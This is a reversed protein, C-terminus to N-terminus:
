SDGCEGKGFEEILGESYAPFVRQVVECQRKSLRDTPAVSVGVGARIMQELLVEPGQGNPLEAIKKLWEISKTAGDSGQFMQYFGHAIIAGIAHVDQLNTDTCDLSYQKSDSFFVGLAYDNLRKQIGDKFRPWAPDRSKEFCNFGTFAHSNEEVSYFSLLDAFGENVSSVIDRETVQRGVLGFGQPARDWNLIPQHSLLNRLPSESVTLHEDFIHHAAEHGMVWKSEWLQHSPWLKEGVNSKPFLIVVPHDNSMRGYAINDSVTTSGGPYTRKISPLLELLVPSIKPGEPSLEHYFSYFSELHDQTTLAIEELSGRQYDAEERCISLKVPRNVVVSDECSEESPGTCNAEAEFGFEVKAVGQSSLGNESSLGSAPPKTHSKLEGVFEHVRVKSIAGAGDSPGCQDDELKFPEFNVHKSPDTQHPLVEQDDRKERDPTLCSSNFVFLLVSMATTLPRSLLSCPM